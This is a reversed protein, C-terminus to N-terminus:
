KNGKSMHQGSTMYILERAETSPIDTDRRNEFECDAETNTSLEVGCGTRRMRVSDAKHGAGNILGGGDTECRLLEGELERGQRRRGRPVVDRMSADFGEIARPSRLM